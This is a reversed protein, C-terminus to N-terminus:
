ATQNSRIVENIEGRWLTVKRKNPDATVGHNKLAQAFMTVDMERIQRLNVPASLWYRLNQSESSGMGVSGLSVAFQWDAVTTYRRFDTSKFRFICITRPLPIVKPALDFLELNYELRRERQAWRKLPSEPLDRHEYSLRRWMRALLRTAEEDLREATPPAKMSAQHIIERLQRLDERFGMPHNRFRWPRSLLVIRTPSLYQLLLDFLLVIGTVVLVFVGLVAFDNSSVQLGISRSFDSIWNRSESSISLGFLQVATGLLTFIAIGSGIITATRAFSEQVHAQIQENFSHLTAVLDHATRGSEEVDKLLGQLLDRFYTYPYAQRLAQRLDNARPNSVPSYTVRRRFYDDTSEVYSDYKGQLQVSDSRVKEVHGQVRGLLLDLTPLIQVLNRKQRRSLIPFLETAEEVLDGAEDLSGAFLARQSQLPELDTGIDRAEHAISFELYGLSEAIGGADGEASVVDRVGSEVPLLLYVPIYANAQYRETRLTVLRGELTGWAVSNSFPDELSMCRRMIAKVASLYRVSYESSEAPPTVPSAFFFLAPRSERTGFTFDALGLHCLNRAVAFITELKKWLLNELYDAAEESSLVPGTPHRAPRPPAWQRNAPWSSWLALQPLCVLSGEGVTGFELLKWSWCAGRLRPDALSQRTVELGALQDQIRTKEPASAAPLLVELHDLLVSGAFPAFVTCRHLSLLSLLASSDIQQKGYELLTASTAEVWWKVEDTMVWICEELPARGLLELLASLHQGWIDGFRASLQQGWSDADFPWPPLAERSIALNGLIEGLGDPAKTQTMELVNTIIQALGRVSIGLRVNPISTSWAFLSMMQEAHELSTSDSTTWYIPRGVFLALQDFRVQDTADKM